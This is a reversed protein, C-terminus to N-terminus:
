ARRQLVHIKNNLGEVFGLAITNEPCCYTSIGDWHRDIMAAFRQYPELRQWTRAARWHELFRRAWGERGYHWLQEFSEKLLYAM